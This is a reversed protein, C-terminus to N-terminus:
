NRNLTIHVCRNLDNHLNFLMMKPYLWHSAKVSFHKRNYMLNSSGIEVIMTPNALVHKAGSGQNPVSEPPFNVNM